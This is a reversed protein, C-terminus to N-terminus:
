VRVKRFIWPVVGVSYRLDSCFFSYAPPIFVSISLRRASIEGSSLRITGVHIWVKHSALGEERHKFSESGPDAARCLSSQFPVPEASAEAPVLEKEKVVTLLSGPDQRLLVPQRFLAQFFGFSSVPYRGPLAGALTGLCFLSAGMGTPTPAEREGLGAAARGTLREFRSRDRSEGIM